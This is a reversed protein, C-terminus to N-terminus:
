RRNSAILHAPFIDAMTDACVTMESAWQILENELRMGTVAEPRNRDTVVSPFVLATM